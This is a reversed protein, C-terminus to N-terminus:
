FPTLEIHRVYIFAVVFGVILIGVSFLWYKFMALWIAVALFLGFVAAFKAVVESRLPRKSEWEFNRM